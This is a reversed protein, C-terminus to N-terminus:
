FRNQERRCTGLLKLDSGDLGKVMISGSARSLLVQGPGARDTKVNFMITSATIDVGDGHLLGGLESAFLTATRAVEDFMVIMASPVGAKRWVADTVCGVKVQDAFAALPLSLAIALTFSQFRRM